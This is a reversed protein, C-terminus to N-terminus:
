PVRGSDGGRENSERDCTKRVAKHITQIEDSLYFQVAFPLNERRGRALFYKKVYFPM